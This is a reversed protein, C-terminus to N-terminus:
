ACRSRSGIDGSHMANLAGDTLSASLFRPRSIGPWKRRFTRGRLRITTQNASSRTSRVTFWGEMGIGVHFRVLAGILRILNTLESGWLVKLPGLALHAHTSGEEPPNLHLHPPPHFLICHGPLKRGGNSSRITIVTSSGAKEISPSPRSDAFWRLSRLSPFAVHGPYPIFWTRLCTSVYVYTNIRYYYM